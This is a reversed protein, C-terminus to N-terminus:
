IQQTNTKSEASEPGVAPWEPASAPCAARGAWRWESPRRVAPLGAIPSHWTCCCCRVARQNEQLRVTRGQLYLIRWKNYMVLVHTEISNQHVIFSSYQIQFSMTNEDSTTVIHGYCFHVWTICRLSWLDISANRSQSITQIQKLKMEEWNLCNNQKRAAVAETELAKIQPCGAVAELRGALDSLRWWLRVIPARGLM